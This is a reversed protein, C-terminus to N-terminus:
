QRCSPKCQDGIQRCLGPTPLARRSAHCGALLMHSAVLRQWNVMAEAGVLQKEVRSFVVVLLSPLLL